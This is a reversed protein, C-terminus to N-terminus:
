ARTSTTSKVSPFEFTFETFLSLKSKFSIRRNHEAITREPTPNGRSSVSRVGLTVEAVWGRLDSLLPHMDAGILKFDPLVRDNKESEKLGLYRTLLHLPGKIEAGQSKRCVMFSLRERAATIVPTSNDTQEM